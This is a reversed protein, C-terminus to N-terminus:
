PCARAIRPQATAGTSPQCAKRMVLCLLRFGALGACVGGIGITFFIMAEILCYFVFVIISIICCHFSTYKYIQRTCIIVNNSLIITKTCPPSPSIGLTSHHM